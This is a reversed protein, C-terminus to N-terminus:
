GPNKGGGKGLESKTLGQRKFQFGLPATLVEGRKQLLKGKGPRSNKGIPGSM